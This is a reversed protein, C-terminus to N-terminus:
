RHSLHVQRRVPLIMRHVTKRAANSKRVNKVFTNNQGSTWACFIDTIKSFSAQRCSQMRNRQSRCQWSDIWTTSTCQQKGTQKCMEMPQPLRQLIELISWNLQTWIKGAWGTCQLEPIRLLKREQYDSFDQLHISHPGTRTKCPHSPFTPCGLAAQRKLIMSNEPLTWHIRKTKYKKFKFRGSIWQQDVKTKKQRSLEDIRLQQAGESETCRFTEIRGNGSSKEYSNKASSKRKGGIKCLALRERDPLPWIVRRTPNWANLIFSYAQNTSLGIQAKSGWTKCMSSPDHKLCYISKESRM